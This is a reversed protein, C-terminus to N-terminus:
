LQNIMFCIRLQSIKMLKKTTLISSCYITINKNEKLKNYINQDLPIEFTIKESLAEELKEENRLNKELLNDSIQLGKYSWYKGSHHWLEIKNDKSDLEGIKLSLPKSDIGDLLVEITQNETNAALQFCHNVSIYYILVVYIFALLLKKM